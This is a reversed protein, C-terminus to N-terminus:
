YNNQAYEMVNNANENKETFDYNIVYQVKRYNGSTSNKLNGSPDFLEEEGEKTKVDYTNTQNYLVKERIQEAGTFAKAQFSNLGVYLASCFAVFLLLIAYIKIRKSM